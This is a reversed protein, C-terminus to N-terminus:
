QALKADVFAALSDVSAFHRASIEDDDIVFGYHQELAAIVGIVAMSDLEAVAGLLPAGAALRQRPVGLTAALIIIVQEAHEM